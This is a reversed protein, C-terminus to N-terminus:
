PTKMKADLMKFLFITQNGFFNFIKVV